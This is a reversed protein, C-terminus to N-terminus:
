RKTKTKKNKEIKTINSLHRTKSLQKTSIKKPIKELLEYYFIRKGSDKKV